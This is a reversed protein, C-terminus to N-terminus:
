MIKHAVLYFFFHCNNMKRSKRRQHKHIFDALLMFFGAAAVIGTALEGPCLTTALAASVKM